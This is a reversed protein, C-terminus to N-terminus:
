RLIGFSGTLDWQLLGGVENLSRCDMLNSGVVLHATLLHGVVLGDGDGGWGAWEDLGFRYRLCFRCCDIILLCFPMLEWNENYASNVVIILLHDHM